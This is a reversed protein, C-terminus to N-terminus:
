RASAKTSSGCVVTLFLVWDRSELWLFDRGLLLFDQYRRLVTPFGSLTGTTWSSHRVSFAASTRVWHSIEWTLQVLNLLRMRTCGLMSVPVVTWKTVIVLWASWLAGSLWQVGELWGKSDSCRDDSNWVHPFLHESFNFMKVKTLSNQGHFSYGQSIAQGFTPGGYYSKLELLETSSVPHLDGM